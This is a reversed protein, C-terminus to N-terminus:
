SLYIYMYIHESISKSSRHSHSEEHSEVADRNPKTRPESQSVGFLKFRQLLNLDNDVDSLKVHAEDVQTSIGIFFAVM